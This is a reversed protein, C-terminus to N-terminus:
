QSRLSAVGKTVCAKRYSDVTGSFKPVKEEDFINAPNKFGALDPVLRVNWMMNEFPTLCM